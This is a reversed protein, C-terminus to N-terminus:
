FSQVEVPDTHLVSLDVIQPKGDTLQEETQIDLETNSIWQVSNQPSCVEFWEQKAEQIQNLFYPCKLFLSLKKHKLM